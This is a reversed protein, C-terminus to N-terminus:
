EEIDGSWRFVIGLFSDPSTCLQELIRPAETSLEITSIVSRVDVRKGAVMEVAKEIYRRFHWREPYVEDAKTFAGESEKDLYELDPEMGGQGANVFEIDKDYGYGHLDTNPLSDPLRLFSVRGRPRVLECATQFAGEGGTAVLVAHPQPLGEPKPNAPNWVHTAGMDQAKELRSQFLDVAILHGSMGSLMQTGMLGIAGQGVVAADDYYQMGMRHIGRFSPVIWYSGAAELLSVEDPVKVTRGPNGLVYEAHARYNFGTVRDGVEFMTVGEGVEAVIGGSMYGFFQQAGENMRALMHMETGTSVGSYAIKIKMWGPGPSPEEADILEVKGPGTMALAKM